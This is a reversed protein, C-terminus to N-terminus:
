IALGEDSSKGGGWIEEWLCSRCRHWLFHSLSHMLSSHPCSLTCYLHLVYRGGVALVGGVEALMRGALAGDEESAMADLTGKDLAAQFSGSEFGTQTADLQQYTMDPRHEANRQNMHSVVTESIDINTLQRYGVDYLQESLESNGCGVVLVKDRPKIYKHLAGCLSNYDGYWEFAKEGRKRFFREWYDASSFEEATRPLLSM